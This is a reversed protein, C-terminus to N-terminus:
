DSASLLEEDRKRRQEVVAPATLGLLVYDSPLM